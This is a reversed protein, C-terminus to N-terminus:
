GKWEVTSFYFFYFNSVHFNCFKYVNVNTPGVNKEKLNLSDLVAQCIFLFMLGFEVNCDSIM